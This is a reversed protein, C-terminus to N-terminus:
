TAHASNRRMNKPSVRDVEYDLVSQAEAALQLPPPPYGPFAHQPGMSLLEYREGTSPM